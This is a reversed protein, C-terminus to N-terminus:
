RASRWRCRARVSGDRGAQGGAHGKSLRAAPGEDRDAAGHARRDRPRDQRAGTRRCGPQAEAAHDLLRHHVQREAARPRGAALDLDRDGRRLAVSAGGRDGGGVADGARLRSRLGCRAFQGDAPRLRAGERHRRSRDSVVHRGAGRRRAAIRQAAQARRCVPRPRAGGDRCLGASSARLDGAARDASPHLGADRHRCAGAGADGARAPVRGAGCRDRRHHRPCLAPFRDRGPRQALARHAAPGAAPGILEGLRSEVNM